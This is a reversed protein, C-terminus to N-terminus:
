LSELICGVADRHPLFFDKMESIEEATFLKVEEGEDGRNKLGGLTSIDVRFVFFFHSDRDQKDVLELDEGAVKIGTEEELERVASEEPTKQGDGKGGPLKWFRPAPKRPDRVLPIGRPTVCFVAVAHPQV